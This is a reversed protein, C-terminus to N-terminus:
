RSGPRRNVPLLLIGSAQLAQDTLTGRSARLLANILASSEKPTLTTLRQLLSDHNGELKADALWQKVRSILKARQIDNTSPRWVKVVQALIRAQEIPFHPVQEVIANKALRHAAELEDDQLAVSTVNMASRVEIAVPFGTSGNIEILQEISPLPQSNYHDVIYKAVARVYRDRMSVRTM